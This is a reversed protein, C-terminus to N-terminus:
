KDKRGYDSNNLCISAAGIALAMSKQLWERDFQQLQSLLFCLYNLTWGPLKGDLMGMNFFSLLIPLEITLKQARVVVDSRSDIEPSKPFFGNLARPLKAKNWTTNIRDIMEDDKIRTQSLKMLRNAHSSYLKSRAAIFKGGIYNEDTSLDSWVETQAKYTGLALEVITSFYEGKDVLPTFLHHIIEDYLAPTNIRLNQFAHSK